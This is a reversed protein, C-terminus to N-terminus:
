VGSGGFFSLSNEHTCRYKPLYKFFEKLSFASSRLIIGSIVESLSSPHSITEKKKFFFIRLLPCCSLAFAALSQPGLVWCFHILSLSPLHAISPPLPCLCLFCLNHTLAACVAMALHPFQEIGLVRMLCNVVAWTGAGPSRIGRSEVPVPVCAHMGGLSVCNFFIKFIFQSVLM